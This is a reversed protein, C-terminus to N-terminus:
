RKSKKKPKPKPKAAAAREYAQERLQRLRESTTAV